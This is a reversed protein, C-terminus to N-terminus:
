EYNNYWAVDEETQYSIMEKYWSFIKNSIMEQVSLCPTTPLHYNECSALAFMYNLRAAPEVPMNIILNDM